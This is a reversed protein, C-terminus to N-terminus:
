KILPKSTSTMFPALASRGAEIDNLMPIIQEATKDNIKSIGNEIGIDRSTNLNDVAEVAIRVALWADDSLEAAVIGRNQQWGEITLPRVDTSWWHRKDICIRAAAIGRSLDDAILRAARKIEITYNHSDRKMVARERRSEILYNSGATIIGGVIVGILGFIASDLNGKLM